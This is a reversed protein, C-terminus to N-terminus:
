AEMDRRAMGGCTDLGEFVVVMERLLDFLDRDDVAPWGARRYPTTGLSVFSIVLGRGFVAGGRGM